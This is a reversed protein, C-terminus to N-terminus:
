FWDGTTVLKSEKTTKHKQRNLIEARRSHKTCLDTKSKPPLHQDFKYSDNQKGKRPLSIGQLVKVRFKGFSRHEVDEFSM